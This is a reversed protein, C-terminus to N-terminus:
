CWLEIEAEISYDLLHTEDVVINTRRYITKALRRKNKAHEASQPRIVSKPYKYVAVKGRNWDKRNRGTQVEM